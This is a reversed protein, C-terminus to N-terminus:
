QDFLLMEPFTITVTTGQNHESDIKFGLYMKRALRHCLYLGIGTSHGVVRGNEGTFGKEMIKPLDKAPIGIGNDKILLKVQGEDEEVNFSLRLNEKKYKISNSIIQGLIFQLWKGDTKVNKKPLDAIIQTNVKILEKSFKRIVGKVLEDIALDKILYDSALDSSKAYYLAQEVYAEIRTMEAKIRQTEESVNNACILDIGAMPLKIEHIWTEVYTQYADQENKYTLLEDNMSKATRKLIDKLIHGECFSAKPLMEAIYSKKELAEFVQYLENYFHRRKYYDYAIGIGYLLLMLFLTLMMLDRPARLLVLIIVIFFLSVLNLFLMLSSNIIYDSFKM